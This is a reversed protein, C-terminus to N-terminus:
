ASWTPLIVLENAVQNKSLDETNYVPNKHTNILLLREILNINICVEKLKAESVLYVLSIIISYGCSFLTLKTYKTLSALSYFHACIDM